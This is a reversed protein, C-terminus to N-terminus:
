LAEAFEYRIGLNDRPDVAFRGPASGEVLRLGRGELWARARGADAVGHLTSRMGRGTILMERRLAGDAVPAILECLGNAIRFGAARAGMAPRDAEYLLEGGLFSQVFAGAAELDAVAHTYGFSETYGIPHAAWHAAPLAHSGRLHTPSDGYFTGDYFEYDAGLSTLPDTHIALGIDRMIRIGHDAAAARAEGLDAEFEIGLHHPGIRGHLMFNKPEFLEVILGGVQILCAHWDAGPLDMMFHGGFNEELHRVSQELNEIVLNTHSFRRCRVSRPGPEASMNHDGSM